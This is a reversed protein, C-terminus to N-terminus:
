NIHYPIGSEKAWSEIEEIDRELFESIMTLSFNQKLLYLVVKRSRNEDGESIGDIKGAVKGEEFGENRYSELVECMEIFEEGEKIEKMRRALAENQINRYDKQQTDLNLQSLANKEDTNLVDIITNRFIADKVTKDPHHTNRVEFVTKQKGNGLADGKVLMIGNVVPIDQYDKLGKPVFQTCLAGVHFMNRKLGARKTDNEVEVNYVNGKTDVSVSDFVVEKGNINNFRVQTDTSILDITPDDMCTRIIHKQVEIDKFAYSMFLDSMYTMENVKKVTKENYRSLDRETM